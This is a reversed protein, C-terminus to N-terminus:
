NDFRGRNNLTGLLMPISKGKSDKGISVVYDNSQPDWYYEGPKFHLSVLKRGFQRKQNVDIGSQTYLDRAIRKQHDKVIAELQILAGRETSSGILGALMEKARVVDSAAIEKRGSDRMVGAINYLLSAKAVRNAGRFAALDEDLYNQIDPDLELLETLRQDETKSDIFGTASAMGKLSTAAFDLGSAILGPAGGAEAKSTRRLTKITSLATEATAARNELNTIQRSNISNPDHETTGTITILKNINQQVESLRQQNNEVDKNQQIAEQLTERENQFRILADKSDEGEGLTGEIEITKQTLNNTFITNGSKADVTAKWPSEPEGEAALKDLQGILAAKQRVQAPSIGTGLANLEELQEGLKQVELRTDKDKAATRFDGLVVPNDKDTIDILQNNEFVTERGILQKWDVTGSGFSLAEEKGTEAITKTTPLDEKRPGAGTLQRIIGETKAQKGFDTGEFKPRAGMTPSWTIEGMDTGNSVQAMFDDWNRGQIKEVIYRQIASQNGGMAKINTVHTQEKDWRAINSTHRSEDIRIKQADRMEQVREQRKLRSTQEKDVKENIGEAVGGAFSLAARGLSIAM